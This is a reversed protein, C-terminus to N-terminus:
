ANTGTLVGKVRSTFPMLAAPEFPAFRRIVEAEHTRFNLKASSEPAAIHIAKLTLETTRGYGQAKQLDRLKARLWSEPAKGWYVLAADCVALNGRHDERVQAPDGERLPEITEIGNEFLYNILARVDESDESDYM